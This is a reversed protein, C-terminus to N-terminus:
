KYSAKIRAMDRLPYYYVCTTSEDDLSPAAVTLFKNDKDFSTVNKFELSQFDKAVKGSEVLHKTVEPNFIVQLGILERM